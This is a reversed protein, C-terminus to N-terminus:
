KKKKTRKAENMPASNGLSLKMVAQDVAQKVADKIADKALATSEAEVAKDAVESELGAEGEGSFALKAEPITTGFVSLRVSVALRKRRAGPAPEKLDKKFSEFRVVVSFGRLNRKKLEASLAVPDDTGVDSAWEPRSALETHVAEAAYTKLVPGVELEPGAKVDSLHFYFKPGSSKASKAALAGGAVSSLGLAIAVAFLARRLPSPSRPSRMIGKM